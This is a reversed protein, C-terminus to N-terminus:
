PEGLEDFLESKREGLAAAGRIIAPPRQLGLSGIQTEARELLEPREELELTHMRRPAPVDASLVDHIFGMSSRPATSSDVPAM